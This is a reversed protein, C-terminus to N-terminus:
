PPCPYERVSPVEQDNFVISWCSQQPAFTTDPLRVTLELLGADFLDPDFVYSATGGSQELTLEFRRPFRQWVFLHGPLTARRTYSVLVLTAPGNIVVRGQSAAFALTASAGESLVIRAGAELILPIDSEPQLPRSLQDPPVHEVAGSFAVLSGTIQVPFPVLIAMGVTLATVASVLTIATLIARRRHEM